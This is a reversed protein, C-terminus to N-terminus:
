SLLLTQDLNKIQYAGLHKSQGLSSDMYMASKSFITEFQDITLFIIPYM